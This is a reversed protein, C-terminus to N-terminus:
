CFRGRYDRMRGNVDRRKPMRDFELDEYDSTAAGYCMEDDDDEVKISSVRHILKLDKSNM